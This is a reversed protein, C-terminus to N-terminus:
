NYAVTVLFSGAYAGAATSNSVPIQGGVGFTASGAGGPAGSLVGGTVSPTLAVSVTESGGSRTMTMAGPVTITFAQGGEGGVNFAARSASAGILAGQGTLTRQGTTADIVVSGSGSVPRVITGFELDASKALVIPQFITSTSAVTGSSSSQALAPGATAVAGLAAALALLTRKSLSM